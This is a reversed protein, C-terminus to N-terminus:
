DARRVALVRVLGGDAKGRALRLLAEVEGPSAVMSLIGGTGGGRTQIPILWAEVAGARFAEELLADPHRAAREAMHAEILVDTEGSSATDPVASLLQASGIVVRLVNPLDIRQYGAGYGVVDSRMTPMDGYGEAVSALIAAGTTNVLEAPIGRSYTPVGRLLELVVPGPVPMLGHETRVMGLGTPLASSYVRDIDLMDLALACGVVEVLADVEGSEHFTIVEPEKGRVRAEAQALRHFIRQATWRAREPLDAQELMTRISAYTLIVDQPLANVNVRTATIGGVDVTEVELRFGITPLRELREAIDDIGAGAHVLAGLAMAGTVGSFCDFYALRM